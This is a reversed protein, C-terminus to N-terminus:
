PYKFIFVLSYYIKISKCPNVERTVNWVTGNKAIQIDKAVVLDDIKKHVIEMASVGDNIYGGSNYAMYQVGIDEIVYCYKTAEYLNNYAGRIHSSKHSGDDIVIDPHGYKTIISDMFAKDSADGIEIAIRDGKIGICEPTIDIGVILANPFYDRFSRVSGGGLVGIEFVLKVDNRISSFCEEYADLYYPNHNKDTDYKSAITRFLNDEKM